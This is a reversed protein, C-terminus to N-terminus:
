GMVRAPNGAVTEQPGVDKVVVSGMGVVAGASIRRGEKVIASTGIWCEREVEVRGNLHVGSMVLVNEAVSVNHAVYVQDDLCSGAGITTDELNGRAISCQNGIVVNDEIVVKGLHPFSVPRGLKDREYGFGSHGIRCGSGIVVNEGISVNSSIHTFPGIRAGPAINVGQELVATSHIVASEDVTGSFKRAIYKQDVLYRLARIFDFRPNDSELWSAGASAIGSAIVAAGDPYQDFSKVAFSLNGSSLEQLSSVGNLICEPGHHPLGLEHGLQISSVPIDFHFTTM